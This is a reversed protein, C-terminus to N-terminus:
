RGKRNIVSACTAAKKGAKPKSKEIVAQFPDRTIKCAGASSSYGITKGSSRSHFATIYGKHSNRAVREITFCVGKEGTRSKVSGKLTQCRFSPRGKKKPM